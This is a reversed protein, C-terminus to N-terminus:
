KKMLKPIPEFAVYECSPHYEVNEYKFAKPGVFELAKKSNMIPPCPLVLTTVRLGYKLEDTTIPEGTDTDVLTILDPTTAVIKESSKAVIFENQFELTM